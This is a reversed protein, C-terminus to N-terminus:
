EPRKRKKLSSKRLHADARIPGSIAEADGRRKRPRPNSDQRRTWSSWGLRSRGDLRLPPAESEPLEVCLDWELHSPKFSEIAEAAVAFGEGEPMLSRYEEFSNARIQVRFADAASYVRAGLVLDSGLTAFNKGLRSRDEPELHRWKPVYEVIRVPQGLLYALGDQLAIASRSSAFLGAFHVRSRAAFSQDDSAGEIAGSLAGLWKAFQDDHPRDAQVAPQSDGWARYFMQLMRGAILDLWDGLPYKDAFRREYWMAESIHTPLPGMPGVLGLWTGRLRPRGKRRDLESLSHASFGLHPDQTLDVISQEPRRAKAIRPKEPAHSELLRLVAFPGAKRLNASLTDWDILDHTQTRDEAAM